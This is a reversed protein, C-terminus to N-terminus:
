ILIICWNRFLNTQPPAPHSYTFGPFDLLFQAVPLRADGEEQNGGELPLLCIRRPQRQEEACGYVNAGTMALGIGQVWRYGSISDAYPLLHRKRALWSVFGSFVWDHCEGQVDVCMAGGALPSKSRMQLPVM